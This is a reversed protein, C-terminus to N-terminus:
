QTHVHVHNNPYFEPPNTMFQWTNSRGVFNLAIIVERLLRSHVTIRAEFNLENCQYNDIMFTIQPM